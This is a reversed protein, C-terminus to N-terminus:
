KLSCKECSKKPDTDTKAGEGIGVTRHRDERAHKPDGGHRGLIHQHLEGEFAHGRGRYHCRVDSLQSDVQRCKDAAPSVGVFEELSSTPCAHNEGAYDPEDTPTGGPSGQFDPKTKPRQRHRDREAYEGDGEASNLLSGPRGM